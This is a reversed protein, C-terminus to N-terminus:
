NKMNELLHMFAKTIASIESKILKLNYKRVCKNTKIKQFM